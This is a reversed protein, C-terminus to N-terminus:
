SARFQEWLRKFRPEFILDYLHEKDPFLERILDRLKKKEIEIDAPPYDTSVILFAIRESAQRIEDINEEELRIDYDRCIRRLHEFVDDETM